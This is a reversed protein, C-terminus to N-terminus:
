GGFWRRFFGRDRCKAEHDPESGKVFPLQVANQCHSAGLEGSPTVWEWVIDQPQTVKYPRSPLNAFLGQWIPLAGSSGGLPTPQNNDMGVWVVGLHEGTFGAFWADRGDNTTGTKGAVKLQPLTRSLSKATGVTAVRQLIYNLIYVSSPNFRQELELPYRQLREGNAAVVERVAKLPTYFGDAALTQYMQAVRYPSSEVAGLLTSPYQSWDGELGLQRLTKSVHGVGLELGLRATSINLSRELAQHLLVDGREKGDYNQPSWVHVREDVHDFRTDDLVSSATYHKPQSLATLYVAPKVLSGIQRQAALARNFGTQHADRGGALALVDGSRTDTIVAAAQLSQKAIDTRRELNVLHQTISQELYFQTSPSLTTFIRLGETRLDEEAYDRKLQQKVLQTFALYRNRYSKPKLVVGLPTQKARLAEASSILEHEAMLDLVHNRRKLARQPHRHPNYYSAGKLMGVLLAQHQIALNKLPRDFYYKAALGFGHIAREGDQGLFIENIYAELIENKEYHLELLVTMWAEKLKRSLTREHTLFYNKVLQQTLTSGGQVARGARLNALIARAISMPRVGYHERFARDEVLLLTNILAKPVDAYPVLDRDERHNPYIAAVQAPDIRLVEVSKGATSMSQVIGANLRIDYVTAPVYEDWYQFARTNIRILQGHQEYTGPHSAQPSRRYNAADLEKYLAKLHITKNTYIELPQAYVRAPLSWRKGEFQQRIIHDLYVSYLVAAVGAILAVYFLLPRLRHLWSKKAEGSKSSTKKTTKKASNKKKVVRKKAAKKVVKKKAVKKKPSSKKSTKKPTSAM